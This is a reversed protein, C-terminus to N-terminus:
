FAMPSTVSGVDVANLDWSAWVPEGLNDSYDIAEVTRQILYHAHNNTDATANSPNGLQMQLTADITAYVFGVMFCSAVMVALFHVIRGKL